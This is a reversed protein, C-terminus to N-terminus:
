LFFFYKSIFAVEIFIQFTTAKNKEKFILAKKTEKSSKKLIILFMKSQVVVVYGNQGEGFCM